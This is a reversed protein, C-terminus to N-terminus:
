DSSGRRVVETVDIFELRDGTWVYNRDELLDFDAGLYYNFIMRFTNVPSISPYLLSDGGDPLRYANMIRFSARIDDDDDLGLVVAPEGHDGQIVIVPSYESDSLLIGLFWELRQNTWELQSRYAEAFRDPSNAKTIVEGSPGIVFPYGPVTLHVLV